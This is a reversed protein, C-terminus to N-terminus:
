SVPQAIGVALSAQRYFRFRPMRLQRDIEGAGHSYKKDRRPDLPLAEKGPLNMGETLLTGCCLRGKRSPAFRM